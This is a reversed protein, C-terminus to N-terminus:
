GRPKIVLGWKKIEAQIFTTFDAASSPSAADIGMGALRGKVEGSNVAEFFGKNIAEVIGAPIAAPGVIGYWASVEYGPVTEAVAPVDPLSPHRKAGTVALGRLKGSRVHPLATSIALVMYDLRGGMLDVAAEAPGKYGVETSAIGTMLNFLDISAGSTGGFAGSNLQGPKSKALAILEKVDRVPVSPPTV